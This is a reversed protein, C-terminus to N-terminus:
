ACGAEQGERRTPSGTGHTGEGVRLGGSRARLPFLCFPRRWQGRVTRGSSGPPHSTPAQSGFLM